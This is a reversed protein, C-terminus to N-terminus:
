NPGINTNFMLLFVYIPIAGECKVKLSMSLDFELDISNWIRKDQLAALYPEINSNVMLLFGYISLGFLGHFKVKPSRSLDFDLYCLNRLRLDWLPAM